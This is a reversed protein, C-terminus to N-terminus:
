PQTVNLRIYDSPAGHTNVEVKIILDGTVADTGMTKTIDPTVTIWSKLDPSTQVLSTIGTAAANQRYTLTLFTIGPTTTIDLGGAPLAARDAASMPGLPNIHFAYKLLNAVGDNQPIAAPGTSGLTGYQVNDIYAEYAGGANTGLGFAIDVSAVASSVPSFPIVYHGFGSALGAKVGGVPPVLTVITTVQQGMFNGSSDYEALTVGLPAATGSTSEADFSLQYSTGFATPVFNGSLLDFGYAGFPAPANGNLGNAVDLKLCQNGATGGSVISASYSITSSILNYFRFDTFTAPDVVDPPSANTTGLTDDEFSGNPILNPGSPFYNASWQSYTQPTSSLSGTQSYKYLQMLTRLDVLKHPLSTSSDILQVAAAHQTPTWLITRGVVFHPGSPSFLAAMDAGTNLGISNM